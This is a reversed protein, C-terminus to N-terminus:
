ESELQDEATRLAEVLVDVLDLRFTVGKPSPKKEGGEGTWYWQRVEGYHSKEFARYAVQIEDRSSKPVTAVTGLDTVNELAELGDIVQPLLKPLVMIGKKTPHWQRDDGALFHERIDVYQRGQYDRLCVWIEASANKKIKAVTAEM